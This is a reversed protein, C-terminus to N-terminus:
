LAAAEQAPELAWMKELNYEKRIEPKFIHVVVNGLDLLIWDGIEKGEISLPKVNEKEALKNLLNAALSQAHKSSRGSAIIMFDAFSSKNQLDILNIEQAKDFDLIKEIKKSLKLANAARPNKSILVEM